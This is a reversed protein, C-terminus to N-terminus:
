PAILAQKIRRRLYTCYKRLDNQIFLWKIASFFGYHLKIILFIERFERIISGGTQHSILCDVLVRSTRSSTFNQHRECRCLWEFSGKTSYATSLKGVESIWERKIWCASLSTPEEGKSLTKADINGYLVKPELTGEQYRSAGYILEPLQHELALRMAVLIAEPILYVTPPPLINFYTGKAHSIGKNIMECYGSAGTQFIHIQKSEYSQVIPVTRDTSHADIVLVEFHPYNQELINDLTYAIWQSQNFTPVIISVFPLEHISSHSNM